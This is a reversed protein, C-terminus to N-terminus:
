TKGKHNNRTRDNAHRSNAHRRSGKEDAEIVSKLRRLKADWFSELFGRLESLGEPRVRYFRRTGERRESVLGANKLVTLHQSIAPRTIAFHAAVEGAPLERVAILALIDRRRPDALARIAADM